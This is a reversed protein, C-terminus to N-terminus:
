DGRKDDSGIVGGVISQAFENRHATFVHGGVSFFDGLLVVEVV